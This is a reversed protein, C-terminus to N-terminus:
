ESKMYTKTVATLSIFTLWSQFCFFLTFLIFLDSCWVEHVSIPNWATFLRRYNEVRMWKVKCHVCQNEDKEDRLAINQILLERDHILGEHLRSSHHFHLRFNGKKINVWVVRSWVFSSLIYFLSSLLCNELNRALSVKIEEKDFDNHTLFNVMRKKYTWMWSKGERKHFYRCTFFFSLVCMIEVAMAAASLLMFIDLSTDSTFFSSLMLFSCREKERKNYTIHITFYEFSDCLYKQHSWNWTSCISRYSTFCFTICVSFLIRSLFNQFKETEKLISGIGVWLFNAWLM